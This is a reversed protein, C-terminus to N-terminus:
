RAKKPGAALALRGSESLSNMADAIDFMQERREREKVSLGQANVWSLLRHTDVRFIRGLSSVEVKFEKADWSANFMDWSRVMLSCWGRCAAEYVSEADVESVHEVGTPDAFSVRCKAM